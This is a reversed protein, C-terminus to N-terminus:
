AADELPDIGTDELAALYERLLELLLERPEM